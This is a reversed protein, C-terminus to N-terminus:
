EWLTEMKTSTILIGSGSSAVLLPSLPYVSASVTSRLTPSPQTLTQPPISPPPLSPLLQHLWKLNRHKFFSFSDLLFNCLSIIGSQLSYQYIYSPPSSTVPLPIAFVASISDYHDTIYLNPFLFRGQLFFSTSSPSAWLIFSSGM